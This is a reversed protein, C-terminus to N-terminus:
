YPIRDEKSTWTHYARLGAERGGQVIPIRRQDLPKVFDEYQFSDDFGIAATDALSCGFTVKSIRAWYIASMCMPCPAGDIYIECGIMMKARAPLCDTMGEPTPIVELLYERGLHAAADRIAMIEAHCTPDGTKLVSNAGRGIIKGNQVIVAGFPGGEGRLVTDIALQAAQESYNTDAM